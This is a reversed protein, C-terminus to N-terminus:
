QVVFTQSTLTYSRSTTGEKVTAVVSYTYTGATLLDFRILSDMYNVNYSYANGLKATNGTAVTGDARKVQVVIQELPSNSNVTGRVIVGKGKTLLAPVTTGGTITVNSTTTTTSGSGSVTFKQNVVAVNSATSTSVIVAYTYTGAPLSNFMVYQDLKKLDYSKANPAITKGTMFKGNSDYVGCTLSTMNTNSSTVTGYVSLTRGQTLTAPVTTGGSIKIQDTGTSPTSPTTNSGGVSFSKNVLTVNTQSANSAIVAYVYSGAPLKNFEVAYDLKSLDYSTTGPVITKGTRFTGATDYVGVTLSTMASTSTVTGKVNLIHGVALNTPVNTGNSIALTNTAVPTPTTGNKDTVTFKKSVVTYNTNAANTAIVAFTYTGTGLTNFRVSADLNKLDYSKARPNITSGTVFQGMSNYVGCTLATINSSASSVVGNISVAQGQKISDPIAANGSITLADNTTVAPAKGDATVAIRSSYLLVDTNASNSAYVRYTYDGVPLKNFEISADLDKLSYSKQAVSVKRGTVLQSSANYVGATVSTLNSTESTVTGYVSVFAGQKITGQIDAGGTLSLKDSTAVPTITSTGTGVTFRKSYLTENTKSGNSAIVAFTYEGDALSNFLVYRDLSKLDYFTSNPAVTRGTKFNGATDYVGVTLSKFDTTKSYAAGIVSVAQGRNIHDPMQFMGALSMTDTAPDTPTVVAGTGVKFTKKYVAYQQNSANTVLVNFDYQGDPLKNFEVYRDLDAINYTKTNVNVTKGTMWGGGQADTVSVTVQTINSVASTVTGRVSIPVGKAISDPIQTINAGSITDTTTGPAPTVPDVSSYVSFAQKVLAYNTNAANTAIVAFTYNGVPLKNFAVYADLRSLDYTTTRPAVTTGTVFKGAADYVGCTLSTIASSASTVTGKVNVPMGLRLTQPITPVGTATLTDNVTVPTINTAAGVTFTAEQVTFDINSGNTATVRYTYKGPTLKDFSVFNDLKSLDYTKANPQASAGTVRELTETYISVSVSQLDSVGSVVTGRVAVTQGATMTTPIVTANSIGISDVNPDAANERVTFQKNMLVQDNASGNSAIVAFIYTGPTLTDFKIQNDLAAIDVFDTNPNYVAGTKFSGTNDYVGVTLASLASTESKVAGAVTVDSGQSIVDPMTFAGSLTIKDSKTETPTEFSETPMPPTEPDGAEGALQQAADAQTLPAETVTTAETPDATEEAFASIGTMSTQLVFLVAFVGALMRNKNRYKM